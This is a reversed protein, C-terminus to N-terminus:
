AAEIIILLIIFVVVSVIFFMFFYAWSVMLHGLVGTDLEMKEMMWFIGFGSVLSWVPLLTVIEVGRERRFGNWFERYYNKKERIRLAHKLGVCDECLYKTDDGGTQARFHPQVGDFYHVTNVNNKDIITKCEDCKYKEVEKEETEFETVTIKGMYVNGTIETMPLTSTSPTNGAVGRVSLGQM